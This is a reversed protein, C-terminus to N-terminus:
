RPQIYVVPFFMSLTVINNYILAVFCCRIIVYSSCQSVFHVSFLFLLLIRRYQYAPPRRFLLSYNRSAINFFCSQVYVYYCKDFAVINSRIFAVFCYRIITLSSTSSVSCVCVFYGSFAVINSRLLAVFCCHLIIRFSAPSVRTGIKRVCVFM